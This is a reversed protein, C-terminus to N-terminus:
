NSQNRECTNGAGRSSSKDPVILVEARRWHSGSRGPGVRRRKGSGLGQFHIAGVLSSEPTVSALVASRSAVGDDGRHMYAFNKQRAPTFEFEVGNFRSLRVIM